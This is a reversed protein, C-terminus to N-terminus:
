PSVGPKTVQKEGTMAHLVVLLDTSLNLHLRDALITQKLRQGLYSYHRSLNLYWTRAYRDVFGM